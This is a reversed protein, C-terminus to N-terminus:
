AQQVWLTGDWILRMTGNVPIATSAGTILDTNFSVGHQIVIEFGSKVNYIQLQQGILTGAPIAAILRSLGSTNNFSVRVLRDRLFRLQGIGQNNATITIRVNNTADGSRAKAVYGSDPSLANGIYDRIIPLTSNEVVFKNLGSNTSDTILTPSTVTADYDFDLDSLYVDNDTKSNRVEFLRLSSQQYNTADVVLSGRVKASDLSIVKSFNGLSFISLKTSNFSINTNTLRAIENGEFAGGLNGGDINLSQRTGAAGEFFLPLLACNKVIPNTIQLGDFYGASRIGFRDGDSIPNLIKTNLGRAKFGAAKGKYSSCGIFETGYDNPHTDWADDSNCYARSNEVRSFMTQGYSSAPSGAPADGVNSTYAHRTFYFDGDTVLTFMSSEDSVGYGFRSAGIENRLYGVEPRVIKTKYCSRIIIGGVGNKNITVDILKPEILAQLFAASNTNDFNVVDYNYGNIKVQGSKSTFIRPNTTYTNHLNDRLTIVGTSTNVASVRCFEGVREQAGAAANILDDAVIKIVPNDNIRDALDTLISSGAAVTITNLTTGTVASENTYSGFATIGGSSSGTFIFKSGNFNTILNRSTCNVSINASLAYIATSDQEVRYGSQWAANVAIYDDNVGDGRAGFMEPTVFGDLQRVWRGTTVGAVAFTVGRDATATSTGKWCVPGAGKPPEAMASWGPHYSALWAVEGDYLGPTQELQEVSEITRMQKRNVDIFVVNVDTANNLKVFIRVTLVSVFGTAPDPKEQLATHGIAVLDGASDFLGVERIFFGGANAPITTEFILTDQSNPDRFPISSTGRWVENVLATAAPDLAPYAGSGDGVAIHTINIQDLPTASNLKSRGINTLITGQM